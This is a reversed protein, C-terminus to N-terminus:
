DKNKNNKWLGYVGIGCILFEYISITLTTYYTAIVKAGEVAVLGYFMHISATIAGGIIMLIFATKNKNFVAGLLIISGLLLGWGMSQIDIYQSLKVYLESANQLSMEGRTIFESGRMFGFASLLVILANALLEYLKM